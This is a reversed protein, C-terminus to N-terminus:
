IKRCGEVEVFFAAELEPKVVEKTSESKKFFSNFVISQKREILHQQALLEFAEKLFCDLSAALIDMDCYSIEIRMREPHGDEASFNNIVKIQHLSALTKIEDLIECDHNTAFILSYKKRCFSSNLIPAIYVHMKSTNVYKKLHAEFKTKITLLNKELVNQKAKLKKAVMQDSLTIEEKLASFGEDTLVVGLFNQLQTYMNKELNQAVEYGGHGDFVSASLPTKGASIVAVSINDPSESMLAEGVIEKAIEDPPLEGYFAFMSNLLSKRKLFNGAGDSEVLVFARDSVGIKKKFYQIEPIHTLGAIELGNDGFTRSINLSHGNACIRRRTVIHGSERLRAFESPATPKHLNNLQVSEVQDHQNIIFVYASSDGLNATTVHLINEDDIWTVASCGTSGIHEHQGYLKQLHYFTGKLALTQKEESLTAFSKVELQSVALFDQQTARWGQVQCVGIGLGLETFYALCYDNQNEPYHPDCFLGDPNCGTESYPLPLIGYM